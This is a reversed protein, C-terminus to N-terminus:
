GNKRWGQKGKVEPTWHLATGTHFTNDKRIVHGIWKWRKKMLITGM